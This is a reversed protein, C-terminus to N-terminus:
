RLHLRREYKTAQYEEQLRVLALVEIDRSETRGAEIDVLKFGGVMKETHQIFVTEREYEGYGSEDVDRPLTKM